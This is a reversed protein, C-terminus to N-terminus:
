SSDFYRMNLLLRLYKQQRRVSVSWALNSIYESWRSRPRDRPQKGTPTAQLVQVEGLKGPANQDRSKVFPAPIERNSSTTRCEPNWSNWLQANQRSTDFRKAFIGDRGSSRLIINKWDIGLGSEFSVAKRHKLERKTFVSRHILRRPRRRGDSTFVVGLYKFTHVQQLTNGSVQLMCQSPNRSFCNFNCHATIVASWGRM